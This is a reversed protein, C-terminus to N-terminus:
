QEERATTDFSHFEAYGVMNKTGDEYVEIIAEKVAIALSEKGDLRITIRM